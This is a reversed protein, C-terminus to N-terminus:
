DMDSRKVTKHGCLPEYYSYDREFKVKECEPWTDGKMVSQLRKWFMGYDIHVASGRWGRTQPYESGKLGSFPWVYGETASGMAVSAVTVDGVKQAVVVWRELDYGAMVVFFAWWKYEMVVTDREHIFRGEPRHKRLVTEAAVLVQNPTVGEFQRVQREGNPHTPDPAEVKPLTACGTLVLVISLFISRLLPPM